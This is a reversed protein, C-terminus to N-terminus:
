HPCAMHYRAFTFARTWSHQTLRRRVHLHCHHKSTLASATRLSACAYACARHWAFAAAALRGGVGCIFDKREYDGLVYVCLLFSLAFGLSVRAYAKVWM